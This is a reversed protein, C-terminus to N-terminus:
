RQRHHSRKSECKDPLRLRHSAISQPSYRWAAPSGLSSTHALPTMGNVPRCGRKTCRKTASPENGFWSISHPGQCLNGVRGPVKIWTRAARRMMIFISTPLSHRPSRAAPALRLRDGGFRSAISRITHPANSQGVWIRRPVATVLHM